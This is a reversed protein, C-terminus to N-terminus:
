KPECTQKAFNICSNMARAEIQVLAEANSYVGSMALKWYDMWKSQQDAMIPMKLAETAMQRLTADLKTNRDILALMEDTQEQISPRISETMAKVKTFQTQMQAGWDAPTFKAPWNKLAEDQMKLGNRFTEEWMQFAQEPIGKVPNSTNEKM